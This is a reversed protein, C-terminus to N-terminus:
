QFCLDIVVITVFKSFCTHLSWEYLIIPEVINNTVAPLGDTLVSELRSSKTLFINQLLATFSDYYLDVLFSEITGLVTINLLSFQALTNAYRKLLLLCQQWRTQQINKDNAYVILAQVIAHQVPLVQVAHVGVSVITFIKSHM